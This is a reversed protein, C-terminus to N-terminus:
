REKKETKNSYSTEVSTLSFSKGNQGPRSWRCRSHKNGLASVNTFELRNLTGWWSFIAPTNIVIAFWDGSSARCVLNAASIWTLTLNNIVSFLEWSVPASIRRLVDARSKRKIAVARNRIPLKLSFTLASKTSIAQYTHGNKRWFTM